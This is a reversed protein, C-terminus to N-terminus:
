VTRPQCTGLAEDLTAADVGAFRERIRETEEQVRTQLESLTEERVKRRADALLSGFLGSGHLTTPLIVARSFTECNGSSASSSPKSAAAEWISRGNRAQVAELDDELVRALESVSECGSVLDTWTQASTSGVESDTGSRLRSSTPPGPSRIPYACASDEYAAVVRSVM